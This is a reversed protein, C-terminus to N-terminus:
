QVNDNKDIPALLFAFFEKVNSARALMNSAHIFQANLFSRLDKMADHLSVREACRGTQSVCGYVGDYIQHNLRPFGAGNILVPNEAIKLALPQLAIFYPTEHPALLLIHWLRLLILAPTANPCPCGQVRFGLDHRAPKDSVTISAGCVVKDVIQLPPQSTGADLQGRVAM